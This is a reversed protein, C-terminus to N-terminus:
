KQRKYDNLKAALLSILRVENKLLDQLVNNGTLLESNWLENSM